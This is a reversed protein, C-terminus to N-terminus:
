QRRVVPAARELAVVAVARWPSALNAARVGPRWCEVPLTLTRREVVVEGLGLDLDARTGHHAVYRRLWAEFREHPIAPWTM